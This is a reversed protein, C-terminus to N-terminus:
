CGWPNRMYSSLQDLEHRERPELDNNSDVRKQILELYRERKRKWYDSGVLEGAITEVTHKRHFCKRLLVSLGAIILAPILFPGAPLTTFKGNESDYAWWLNGSM